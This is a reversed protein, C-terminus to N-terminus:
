TLSLTATSHGLYLRMYPQHNKKKKKQTLDWSGMYPHHIAGVGYLKGGSEVHEEHHVYVHGGEGVWYFLLFRIYLVKKWVELSFEM